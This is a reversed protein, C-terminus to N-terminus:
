KMLLAKRLCTYKPTEMKYVYFGSRVVRGQSDKGNWSVTQYSAPLSRDVLRTILRGTLDFVTIRVRSAQPLGFRIITSPNFPNPSNQSLFFAKPAPAQERALPLSYLHFQNQTASETSDIGDHATVSWTYLSDDVFNGNVPLVAFTDTVGAIVTDLGYGQLHISYRVTDADPDVVPRWTFRVATSDLSDGDAPNLLAFASPPTNVFYVSIRVTDTTSHGTADTATLILTDNGLFLSDTVIRLVHTVSDVTATIRSGGSLLIKLSSDPSLDDAVLSDLDVRLSDTRRVPWSPPLSWSPAQYPVASVGTSRTGVNGASDLAAVWYYYRDDNVLGTIIKGIAPKYVTDVAAAGASDGTISQYIIYGALDAAAAATWVLTDRQDGPHASLGTVAAPPTTDIKFTGEAAFASGAYGGDVAQVSWYYTGQPLGYLSWAQNYQANGAAVVTRQGSALSQPAMVQIGGSSTGVRLNYTLSVAPTHDDTTQNWGLTVGAGAAAATLGGPASPAVNKTLVNNRFIRGATTYGTFDVAGDGDLDGIATVGAGALGAAPVPVFASGTNRYINNGSIADLKGDNDV